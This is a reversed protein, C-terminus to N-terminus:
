KPFELIMLVFASGNNIQPPNSNKEITLKFLGQRERFEQVMKFGKHGPGKKANTGEFRNVLEAFVAEAMKDPPLVFQLIAQTIKNEQYLLSLSAKEVKIGEITDALVKFSYSISNNPLTYQRNFSLAGISRYYSVLTTDRNKLDGQFFYASALTAFDQAFTQFTLFALIIALIM